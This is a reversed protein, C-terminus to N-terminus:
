NTSSYRGAVAPQAPDQLEFVCDFLTEAVPWGARKRWLEIFARSVDVANPSVQVTQLELARFRDEEDHLTGDQHVYSYFRQIVGPKAYPALECAAGTETGREAHALSFSDQVMHLLAGLAVQDLDKRVEVIGTAFLNIATIDGPFYTALDEMGLQRIFKDTALERSSIGWLFRAWMKMRMVTQAATEGDVSGMAHMFQLDGYHSRYLLYDGPGFAPMQPNKVLAAAAQVGADKFLGFWCKPQATSRLTVKVDCDALRPPNNANLKFPPDDPWRVGYLLVRNANVSELTVCANESGPPQDCGLAALTIAEHVPAKMMPIATGVFWQGVADIVRNSGLSTLKRDVDSVKPLVQFAHASGSAMVTWVAIGLALKALTRRTRESPAPEHEEIEHHM